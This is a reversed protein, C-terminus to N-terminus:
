FLQEKMTDFSKNESPRNGYNGGYAVDKELNKNMREELEEQTEKPV